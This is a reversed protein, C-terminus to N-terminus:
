HTIRRSDFKVSQALDIAVRTSDPTSWHRIGTIQSAKSNEHPAATESIGPRKPPPSKLAAQQVPETLAAAADDALPHRPYRRVFEAFTARARVPDDLDDRYIEGITLLAQFRYKSGPYERRLFEYQVLASRLVKDDDFRRGMELQLEAVANVSADAKGSGPCGYYVRRYSDIVRQYQTRTRREPSRANLDERLHEAGAFQARAWADSKGRAEAPLAAFLLLMAACSRM